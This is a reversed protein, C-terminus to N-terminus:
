LLVPAPPRPRTVSRRHAERELESRERAARAVAEGGRAPDARGRRDTKGSVLLWGVAVLGSLTLVLASWRWRAEGM